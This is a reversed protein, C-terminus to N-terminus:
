LSIPFALKSWHEIRTLKGEGGPGHYPYTAIDGLAYVDDKGKVQFFEDTEISGDREL